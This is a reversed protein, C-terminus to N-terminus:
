PPPRLAKRMSRFIPRRSTKIINLFIPIFFTYYKEMESVYEGFLKSLIKSLILLYNDNIIYTKILQIIDDLYYQIKNKFQTIIFLLNGFLNKQNNLEFKPIVEIINPLIIDILNSEENSLSNILEELHTIIQTSLEKQTNDKLIKMLSIVAKITSIDIKSLDIEYFSKTKRNFRSIKFDNDEYSEEESLNGELHYLSLGFFTFYKEMQTPELAGCLGFINM